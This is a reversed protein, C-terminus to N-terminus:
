NSNTLKAWLQEVQQTLDALSGNNYIVFDVLEARQEDSTQNEVRAYFDTQSFGREKARQERLELDAIVAISKDFKAFLNKEILLPVEYIVIQDSDLNQLRDALEAQVAPHTIEELIRLKASDRFVIDALKTRDIEGLANVVEEGFKAKVANFARGTPLLVERALDDAKIVVAGHDAFLKAVTTKGSAIGGTLAVLV